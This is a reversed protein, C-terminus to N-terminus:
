VKVEVIIDGCVIGKRGIGEKISGAAMEKMVMRMVSVKLRMRMTLELMVREGWERRQGKVRLVLRRIREGVGLVGGKGKLGCGGGELALLLLLLLLLVDV